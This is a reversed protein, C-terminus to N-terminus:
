AETRLTFSKWEAHGGHMRWIFGDLVYHTIQPLALLPVVWALTAKDALKPLHAFWGFAAEHDRWVLGDWFGEEVYALVFVTAVFVAMGLMRPRLLATFLSAAGVPATVRKRSYVWVLAMYPIGHAVVNTMTFALDGNFGVIGVYWSIATGVLLLNKPANVRGNARWARTEKLAYALLTALYFTFLIPDLTSSKLSFFDGAVFWSFNRPLHTHWWAIPYLTAAYIAAQDLLRGWKPQDMEKRSYIMMFGYQQRIFHFVALYALVRWFILHGRSYLMVGIMWGILPVLTYLGRRAGFEEPDFYTRFLTSYVHAVDVCVILIFWTWLPIDSAAGFTQPFLIVLGTTLFAPALIFFGDVFPSAIWPQSSSPKM